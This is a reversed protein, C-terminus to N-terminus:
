YGELAYPNLFQRGWFFKKDTKSLSAKDCVDDWHTTILDIQGDIVEKADNESLLFHHAADVCFSLKSLNLTENDSIKTIGMAQSAEGGNRGQPCIDYAPTLSLQGDWFAAHNRAHDDTNGCLINFVMRSFLEKCNIAPNIFKNRIIESLEQYTAYRAMMEDLEFLTLSSFMLKRQWGNESKIRDFREILLVDKNLSKTLKVEAVNLNVLKALSMAIYEAKIVDYLDTSTSFKAIYKGNDSDILVKPRAGGVATGHLLAAALQPTLPIRKNVQEAARQLDDMSVGVNERAVYESNSAQFDLAGIRDSGSEMLYVIEDLNVSDIESGTINMLRNIIVRRGWADPAADRLCSAIKLGTLPNQIGQILPLEKENLSLANDRSLYSKGYNFLVIGEDKDRTVQGAIVPATKGPLWIWVFANEQNVSKSTMM